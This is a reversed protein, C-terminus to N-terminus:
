RAQCQPIELSLTLEGGKRFRDLARWVVEAEQCKGEQLDLQYLQELASAQGVDQQLQLYGPVLDIQLGNRDNMWINFADVFYSQTILNNNQSLLALILYEQAAGAQDGQAEKLRGALLVQPTPPEQQWASLSALKKAADVDGKALAELGQTWYPQVSGAAAPNDQQWTGQVQQRLASQSFFPHGAWGPALDLAKQYDVAPRLDQEAAMQGQGSKEAIWGRILLYTPENPELEIARRIAAAASPAEGAYWDLVALNAWMLSVSPELALSNQLYQRAKL